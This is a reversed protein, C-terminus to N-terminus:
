ETEHNTTLHMILQAVVTPEAFVKKEAMKEQDWNYALNLHKFELARNITCSNRVSYIFNNRM